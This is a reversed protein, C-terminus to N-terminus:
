DPSSRWEPSDGALRRCWGRERRISATRQCPGYRSAPGRRDSVSSGGVGLRFPTIMRALAGGQRALVVGTRMTVLRIGAIRVPETASEWDRCVGPLFGVGASAQEDLRESGRDGYYGIASASVVVGPKDHLGALTRSLLSTGRTRSELIREKVRGTWRGSAINEGALHVVANTGELQRSDLEGNEPDWVIDSSRSRGVRIPEHGGERLRDTLARGVLGSAGTVVVKMPDAKRM